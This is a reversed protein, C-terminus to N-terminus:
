IYDCKITKYESNKYLLKFPKGCGYILDKSIVNDCYEKDAHPNIQELTDKFIGHRFIGCNIQLIEIWGNCNPCEVIISM